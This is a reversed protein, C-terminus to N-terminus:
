RLGILEDDREGRLQELDADVDFPADKRYALIEQHLLRLQAILDHDQKASTASVSTDATDAMEDDVLYQRIADLCYEAVTINHRAAASEIRRATEADAVLEIRQTDMRIAEEVLGHIHSAVADVRHRNDRMTGCLARVRWRCNPTVCQLELNPTDYVM